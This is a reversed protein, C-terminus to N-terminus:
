RNAGAFDDQRADLWDTRDRGMQERRAEAREDSALRRRSKDTREDIREAIADIDSPLLAVPMPRRASSTVPADSVGRGAQDMGSQNFGDVIEQFMADYTKGGDFAKLLGMNRELSAGANLMLEDFSNEAVRIVAGGPQAEVIGGTAFGPIDPLGPIGGLIGGVADAAGQAAGIIGGFDPTPINGLLDILGQVADIAPQVAGQIAGFASEFTGQITGLVGSVAGQLGNLVTEVSTRVANIATDVLARIADWVRQFTARIAEMVTTVIGSIANLVTEIITRILNIQTEVIVKIANWVTDFVVRIAEMTTSIIASIAALWTEIATQIIGIVTQIVLQIANWVTEFVIRIAEMGVSIATSIVTIWTEIGTQIVLLVTEIVLQIANWATEFVIRLAELGATLLTSIAEWVTTVVTQIANWVTEFVGQIATLAASLDVNFLNALGTILGGIVGIVGTVIGQIGGWVASFIGGVGNVAGTLDGSLIGTLVQIAGTIVGIATTVVTAIVDFVPGIAPAIVTTIINVLDALRAGATVAFEGITEGLAVFRPVIDSAFQVVQPALESFATSIASLDLNDIFSRIGEVLPIDDTSFEGLGDFLGSFDINEIFDALQNIVPLLTAAIFSSLPVLVSRFLRTFTPIFGGTAADAAAQAGGALDQVGEGLLNVGLIQDGLDEYPSGVLEGAIAARRAPDEIGEITDIIGQLATPDGANAAEILAEVEAASRGSAGALEEIQEPTIELLRIGLEKIGDLVKDAELETNIFESQLLGLAQEGSLGAGELIPAYESLLEAVQEAPLNTTGLAAALDLAAQPTEALGSDAIQATVRVLGEPELALADAVAAVQVGFDDLDETPLQDGFQQFTLQVIEGAEEVSGVIGSTYIEGAEAGLEGAVDAGVGLSTQIRREFGAQDLAGGFGLAFVGGVAAAAAGVPGPLADLASLFGETDAEVDIVAERAEDALGDLESDVAGVNEAVARIEATRNEALDELSSRVGADDVAVDVNATEGDLGAIADEAAGIQADDVLVEADIEGNIGRIQSEVADVAGTDVLPTIRLDTAELAALDDLLKDVGTQDVITEVVLEIADEALRETANRVEQIAQLAQSIDYTFTEQITM